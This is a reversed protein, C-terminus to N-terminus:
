VEGRTLREDQPTATPAEGQGTPARVQPVLPDCEPCLLVSVAGDPSVRTGWGPKGDYAWSCCLCQRPSPPAISVLGSM